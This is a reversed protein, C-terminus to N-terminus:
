IWNKGQEQVEQFSSLRTVISPLSARVKETKVVIDYLESVKNQKELDDLQHKRDSIQNLKQHLSTIRGDLQELHSSDLQAVKSSLYAVAEILSKDDTLGTLFSKKSEDNGLFLELKKLRQELANIKSLDNTRSFQPRCLLEYKVGPSDSKTENSKASEIDSQLKSLSPREKDSTGKFIDGEIWNEINLDKLNKTLVELNSAVVDTTLDGTFSEGNDENSKKKGKLQQLSELLESCEGSVRHYRELLTEKEGRAALEWEGFTQYGHQKMSNDSFDVREGHIAQGEFRKYAQAPSVTIINVNDSDDSEFLPPQRSAQDAEPLDSTEFVDPQDQAIGPLNAYKSVSSM